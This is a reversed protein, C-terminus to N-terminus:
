ESTLGICFHSVRASFYSFHLFPSPAHSLHYLAQRALVLKFGLVVGGLFFSLIFIVASV